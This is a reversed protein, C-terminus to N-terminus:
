ETVESAKKLVFSKMQEFMYNLVMTGGGYRRDFIQQVVIPEDLKIRKGSEEDVAYHSFTLKYAEIM